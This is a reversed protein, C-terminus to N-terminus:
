KQSSLWNEFMRKEDEAERTEAHIQELTAENEELQLELEKIYETTKKVVTELDTIEM